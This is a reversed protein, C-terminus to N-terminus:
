HWKETRVEYKKSNKDVYAGLILMVQQHSLADKKYYGYLFVGGGGALLLNRTTGQSM